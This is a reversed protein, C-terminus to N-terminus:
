VNMSPNWDKHSRKKSSNTCGLPLTLTQGSPGAPFPSPRNGQLWCCKKGPGPDVSLKLVAVVNQDPIGITLQQFLRYQTM